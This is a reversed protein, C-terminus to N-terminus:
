SWKLRYHRHTTFAGSDSFKYRYSQLSYEVIANQIYSNNWNWWVLVLVIFILTTMLEHADTVFYWVMVKMICHSAAVIGGSVKDARNPISLYAVLHGFNEAPLVFIQTRLKQWMEPAVPADSFQHIMMIFSLICFSIFFVEVTTTYLGGAFKEIESKVGKIVPVALLEEYVRRYLELIAHVQEPLNQTHM